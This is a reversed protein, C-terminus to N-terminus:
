QRRVQRGQWKDKGSTTVAPIEPHSDVSWGLEFRTWTSTKSAGETKPYTSWCFGEADREQVAPARREQGEPLRCRRALARLSWLRRVKIDDEAHGTGPNETWTTCAESDARKFVGRTIPPSPGESARFGATASASGNQTQGELGCSISGALSEADDDDPDGVDQEVPDPEHSEEQEDNGDEQCEYEEAETGIRYAEVNDVDDRFDEEIVEAEYVRRKPYESRAKRTSNKGVVSRAAVRPGPVVQGARREVDQIKPFSVKLVTEIRESNYLGGAKFLVQARQAVTLRSSRLMKSAVGPGIGKDGCGAHAVGDEAEPSVHVLRADISWTTSM